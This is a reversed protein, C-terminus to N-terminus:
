GADGIQSLRKKADDINKPHGKGAAVFRTLLARAKARDGKAQYALALRYDIPLESGGPLAAARELSAIAQDFQGADTL